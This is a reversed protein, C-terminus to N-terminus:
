AAQPQAAATSPPTPGIGALSLAKSILPSPYPQEGNEQRIIAEVLPTMLSAQRVNVPEDPGLGCARSVADVYAATPNESPPAWRTILQRITKCQDDTQYSLLVKCIARIGYEPASFTVFEPDTQDDAEGVWRIKSLRINGPNNRRIGPPTEVNM